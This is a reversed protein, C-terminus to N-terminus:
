VNVHMKCHLRATHPKSPSAKGVVVVVVVVAVEVVVVFDQQPIKIGHM